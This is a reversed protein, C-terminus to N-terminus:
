SKPTITWKVEKEVMECAQANCVSFDILAKVEMPSTPQASVKFGLEKETLASPEQRKGAIETLKSTANVTLAAPYDVNMKYDALPRIKIESGNASKPFQIMFRPDGVQPTATKQSAVKPNVVPSTTTQENKTERPEQAETSSKNSCALCLVAILSLIRM